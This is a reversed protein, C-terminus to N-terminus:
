EQAIADWRTHRPAKREPPDPPLPIGMQHAIAVGDIYCPDEDDQAKSWGASEVFTAAQEDSQFVVCLYFSTATADDFRASEQAARKAMGDLESIPVKVRKAKKISWDIDPM